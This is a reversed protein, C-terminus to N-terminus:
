EHSRWAERFFVFFVAMMLGLFLAIAVNLKIRPSVPNRPLEPESLISPVSNQLVFSRSNLLEDRQERATELNDQAWDRERVLKRREVELQILNDRVQDLEEELDILRRELIERQKEKENVDLRTEALLKDIHIYNPNILSMWNMDLSSEEGWNYQPIASYNDDEVFFKDVNSLNDELFSIRERGLVISVSNLEELESEVSSVKSSLNESRTQLVSLSHERDLENLENQIEQLDQEREDKNDRADSIRDEMRKELFALIFSDFSDQAVENLEQALEPSDATAKIIIQRNDNNLEVQYKNYVEVPELEVEQSINNMLEPSQFLAEYNAMNLGYNDEAASEPISLIMESEYEPTMTLSVLFAALGFLLIIGSILFKNEWLTELLEFIDIEVMDEDTTINSQSSKEEPM